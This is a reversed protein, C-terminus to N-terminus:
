ACKDLIINFVGAVKNADEQGNLDIFYDQVMTKLQEDGEVLELAYQENNNVIANIMNEKLSIEAPVVSKNKTAVKYGAYLGALVAVGITAYKGNQLTIHPAVYENYKAIVSVPMSPMSFSPMSVKPLSISPMSIKPISISPMSPMSPRRSWLDCAMEMYGKPTEQQAFSQSCVTQLLAVSVVVRKITSNMLVEM